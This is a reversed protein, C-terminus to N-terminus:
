EPRQTLNTPLRAIAFIRRLKEEITRKLTFPNLSKALLILKTKADDSVWESSLV